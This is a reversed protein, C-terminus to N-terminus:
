GYKGPYVQSRSVWLKYLGLYGPNPFYNCCCGELHSIHSTSIILMFLWSLEAKVKGQSHYLLPDAKELLLGELNSLQKKKGNVNNTSDKNMIVKSQYLKSVLGNSNGFSYADMFIQIVHPVEIPCLGKINQDNFLYIYYQLSGM